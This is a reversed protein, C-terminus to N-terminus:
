TKPIASKEKALKALAYGFSLIVISHGITFGYPQFALIPIVCVNIFFLDMFKFLKAYLVLILILYLLGLKSIFDVFASHPNHGYIENQIVVSNGIWFYKALNSFMYDYQAVRLGSSMGLDTVLPSATVTLKNDNFQMEKTKLLVVRAKELKKSNKEEESLSNETKDLKIEDEWVNKPESGAPKKGDREQVKVLLPELGYMIMNNRTTLEKSPAM